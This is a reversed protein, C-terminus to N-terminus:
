TAAECQVFDLDGPTIDTNSRRVRKDFDRKYGAQAATLRNGVSQM